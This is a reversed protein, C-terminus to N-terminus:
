IEWEQLLKKDTNSAVKYMRVLEKKALEIKKDSYPKYFNL